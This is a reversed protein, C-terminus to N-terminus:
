KEKLPVFPIHLQEMSYKVDELQEGTLLIAKATKSWFKGLLEKNASLLEQPGTVEYTDSEAHHTYFLSPVVELKSKHQAIKQAAVAQAAETTGGGSAATGDDDVDAAIGLISQLAYRRSYTCASGITQATLENRMTAPMTLDNSIWEDSTHVLLTTMTLERGKVHPTQIIALGNKALAPMTAQIITALDAYKSKFQPNLNAKVVQAFELQAKCLAEILKGITQSRKSGTEAVQPREQQNPPETPKWDSEPEPFPYHKDASM